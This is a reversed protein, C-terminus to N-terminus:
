AQALGLEQNYLGIEGHQDLARGLDGELIRMDHAAWRVRVADGIDVPVAFFRDDAVNAVFDPWGPVDLTVKVWSGQYEIAHVEGTLRTSRARAAPARSASWSSAIAGSPAISRRASWSPRAQLPCRSATARPARCSRM